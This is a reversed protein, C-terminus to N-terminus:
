YHDDGQRLYINDYLDKDETKRAVALGRADEEPFPWRISRLWVIMPSKEGPSTRPHIHRWARVPLDEAIQWSGSGASSAVSSFPSAMPGRGATPFTRRWIISTAKM